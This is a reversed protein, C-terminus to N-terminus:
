EGERSVESRRAPEGKGTSGTRSASDRESSNETRSSSESESKRAREAQRFEESLIGCNEVDIFRNWKQFHNRLRGEARMGIKELVRGSATNEAFYHAHIRHLGLNAFGYELMARAAETAYGKRWYPVGIWYGLEARQHTESIELGAGGCLEDGPLKCIAFSVSRGARFDDESRTLFKRADEDTYPHPINLTTAAVERAGALRVLSPIDEQKHFRLLLRATRLELPATV